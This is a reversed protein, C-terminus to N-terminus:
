GALKRISLWKGEEGKRILLELVRGQIIGDDSVDQDAAKVVERLDDFVGVIGPEDCRVEYVTGDHCAIFSARVNPSTAVSRIDAWSPGSSGPHNHLTAVGGREANVRAMGSESFACRMRVPEHDFTDAVRKGTRCSVAVMREYDKGDCERLIRVAEARLTEAARDPVSSSRYKEAYSPGTVARRNVTYRNREGKVRRPWEEAVSEKIDIRKGKADYAEERGVRRRTRRDALLNRQATEARQLRIRARASDLGEAELAAVERKADRIRRENARQRQRRKYAEEPDDGADEDPTESWRRERGPIYPAVSHGCNPEMLGDAAGSEEFGKYHVGEITVPGDLGYVRGQWERHSPRRHSGVEVLAVGARRCIDLARDVSAQKTMTVIHRRMVTDPQKRCGSAYDVVRVGRDAGRRVAEAVAREVPLEETRM